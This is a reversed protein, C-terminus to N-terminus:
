SQSGLSANVLIYEWRTQEHLGIVCHLDRLRNWFNFGIFCPYLNPRSEHYLLCKGAADMMRPTNTEAVQPLHLHM